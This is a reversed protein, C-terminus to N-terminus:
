YKLKVETYLREMNLNQRFNLKHKFLSLLKLKEIRHRVGSFFSKEGGFSWILEFHFFLTGCRHLFLFKGLFKGFNQALMLCKEM